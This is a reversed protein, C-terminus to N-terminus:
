YRASNGGRAQLRRAIVTSRGSPVAKKKIVKEAGGAAKPPPMLSDPHGHPLPKGSSDMGPAPPPALEDKQEATLPDLGLSNARIEDATMVKADSYLKDIQAQAQPDVEVSVQWAFEIDTFGFWRAIIQNLMSKVWGMIPALGEELAADQSVGATARNVQKSFATPPLSMAYCIIRTLWEDFDDKLKRDMTDTVNVGAPVFMTGRRAKDNGLLLSDWYEKFKKIQDPNWTDPVSFILDPTSGDTYYALQSLQRRIAVNVTMIIQEVPSYGYVKYSRPNRPLYMLEDRSYDVAPLGKIIQQYAADPAMPTRGDVSLVRKITAGDMIDLSYVQGGRTMRPYICPADIVFMDELIVRLWTSFDHERNPYAFFDTLMKCRPDDAPSSELDKPRIVWEKHAVQDKRTEIAVRLIDLSDALARLQVFSVAEGQRTTLSLNYGTPYDFQRGDAAEQAVPPLPNSPGFWENPVQGNVAYRVGQILRAVMGPEIPTKVGGSAM